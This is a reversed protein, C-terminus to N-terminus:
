LILAPRQEFLLMDRGLVHDEGERGVEAVDPLLIREAYRERGLADHGVNQLGEVAGVFAAETMGWGFLGTSNTLTRTAATPRRARPRCANAEVGCAAEGTIRSRSTIKPPWVKRAFM